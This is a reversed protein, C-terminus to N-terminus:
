LQIAITYTVSVELLGTELYGRQLLAFMNRPEPQHLTLDPFKM